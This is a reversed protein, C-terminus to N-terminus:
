VPRMPGYFTGGPIYLCDGPGYVENGYSTQGAMYYRVQDFTHRHRPSFSDARKVSDRYASAILFGVGSQEDKFIKAKAGSGPRPASLMDPLEDEQWTELRVASNMEMVM